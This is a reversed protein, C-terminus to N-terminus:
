YGGLSLNLDLGGQTQQKSQEGNKSSSPLMAPNGRFHVSEMFDELGFSLTGTSKMKKEKEHVKPEKSANVMQDYVERMNRILSFFTNIKEEEEDDSAARKTRGNEMVSSFSFDEKIPHNTKM